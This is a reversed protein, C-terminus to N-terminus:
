FNPWGNPDIKHAIVWAAILIVWVLVRDVFRLRRQQKAEWIEQRAAVLAFAGSEDGAGETGEWIREYRRIPSTFMRDLVSRILREIM